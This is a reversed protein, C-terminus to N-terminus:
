VHARGIERNHEPQPSYTGALGARFITVDIKTESPSRASLTFRIFGGSEVHEVTIIPRNRRNVVVELAHEVGGVGCTYRNASESLLCYGLGPFYRPYLEVASLVGCVQEVDHAFVTSCDIVDSVM